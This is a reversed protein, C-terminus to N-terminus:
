ENTRENLSQSATLLYVDKNAIFSLQLVTVFDVIFLSVFV